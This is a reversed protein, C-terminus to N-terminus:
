HPVEAVSIARQDELLRRTAVDDFQPDDAMICLFFGDRSAHAVFEAVNFVPHYPEPLGNLWLMGFVAALAAVLITLEFTIPIYAPWSNLPRGGVNLPYDVVTAYWQMFFGGTGGLIGGALVILPLRRGRVGVASALGEVPYPTFADLRRYGAERVRLAAALLREEDDFQAMLGYIPTKVSM